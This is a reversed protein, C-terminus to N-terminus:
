LTYASGVDGIADHAPLPKTQLADVVLFILGRWFQKGVAVSLPCLGHSIFGLTVAYNPLQSVCSKFRRPGQDEEYGEEKENM